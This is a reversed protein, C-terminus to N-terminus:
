IEIGLKKAAEQAIQRGSAVAEVVTSNGTAVDGAYFINENSLMEEARTSGLALIIQAFEGLMTESHAVDVLKGNDDFQTKCAYAILLHNHKEVKTLRTMPIIDVRQELLLAREQETIRMNDVGRRILMNVSSAGNLKATIACDVAAAGGGIIAVSDNTAYDAPNRLYKTYDLTFIEGEIGLTRSKQAGTAVIVAAFGQQLLAAYDDIAHNFHMEILTNQVIRQWEAGVIDRPLRISPILNMAGGITAEKEYWVVKFGHKILESVAGIGCPGGGIVAIQIGNSKATQPQFLLDQQRARRMIEAQLPPIQIPKDVYQRLCARMCFKDPCVLGCVEGLPNQKAILEAAQKIDDKKAAAIFDCPSCHVPCAKECPKTKCHLCRSLETNFLATSPYRPKM